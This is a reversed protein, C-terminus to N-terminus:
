QLNEALSKLLPFSEEPLHKQLELLRSSLTAKDSASVNFHGLKRKARATKGYWHIHCGPIALMDRSFSGCGIINVMATASRLETSGLPLGCVARLHNEFQCTDAGQMTWHGSNHVRPAIENVLLQEEVQFFEVALVGVYDLEEALKKFINEAQAQLNETIQPAPAITLHLQGEHHHNEVLPYFAFEGTQSRVGVLSVERSFNIMKEVIIPVTHLDLKSLALSLESIDSKDKLRWQGYGDYGDRSAKLVLPTGLQEVIEPLESVNSMVRFESTPIDLSALLNKEKVRDAGARIATIGPKLKGTEDALKLLHEPVHEFEVTIVDADDVAEALTVKAPTKSIPNIVQDKNVDVARVHIGLPCGALYMMRALQGGGYVLAKM